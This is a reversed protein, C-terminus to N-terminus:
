VQDNARKILNVIEMGAEELNDFHTKVVESLSAPVIKADKNIVPLDRPIFGLFVECFRRIQYDDAFGVEEQLDIRGPRLVAPDIQSVDNTTVITILGYPTLIGDLVNLIGTMTVGEREDDRDKVATVVDIDELLLISGPRIDSVDDILDDDSSKASLNIIYVDKGFEHAIASAVSSKGTGPPGQFLYGRHYPVALEIYRKEQRIFNKIDEMIREAQGEKLIVSKIGRSPVTSARGFGGYKRSVYISGTRKVTARNELEERLFNILAEKAQVSSCTLILGGNLMGRRSKRSARVEVSSDAKIEDKFQEAMSLARVGIRYGKIVIQHAMGDNHAIRLERNMPDDPEYRTTSVEESSVILSKIKNKPTQELLVNQVIDYLPDGGDIQIEYIRNSQLEDFIEVTSKVLSVFASAVIINRRVRKEPILDAHSIVARDLTDVFGMFRDFTGRVNLPKKM